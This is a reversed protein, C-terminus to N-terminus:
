SILYRVLQIIEGIMYLSGFAIVQSKGQSKAIKISQKVASDIGCVEDIKGHYVRAKKALDKAEMARPNNPKTVILRDFKPAIIKLMEDVEKDKLVGVIGITYCKELADITEALANIGDVNHAGDIFIVPKDSIKEFRGEWKTEFIGKKIQEDILYILRSQMLYEIVKLAISCNYVQHAGIMQMVYTQGGVEFSSGEKSVLTLRVKSTDVWEIRAKKDECEYKIVQMVEQSQIPMVVFGNPKIIGAKQKAISGLTDGLFDKHDIAIKTLVSVLSKSIVNTADLAGGLGVELIAFDVKQEYFYVLAIATMIEFYSPSSGEERLEKAIKTVREVYALFTEENINESNIRIEERPTILHPSSFVGVKYGGSQLIHSILQSTSGKGNTGGIHIIQLEDQPSGLKEMLKRIPELGLEIKSKTFAELYGLALQEQM